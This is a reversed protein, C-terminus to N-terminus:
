IGSSCKPKLYVKSAIVNASYHLSQQMYVQPYNDPLKPKLLFGETSLAFRGEKSIVLWLHLRYTNSDVSQMHM